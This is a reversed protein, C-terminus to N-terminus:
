RTRPASVGAPNHKTLFAELRTLFDTFNAPNDLGHGEDKYFASIVESSAGKRAALAKVMKHAQEVPVNTDLEGHAIFVPVTVREAQALPSLAKLDTEEEGRVKKEWQRFYRPAGFMRRDHKLMGPLDSVGSLSIACRYKEPNRIVGWLAVYGGYSAGMICVRAPDVTGQRILWDVGDDVDDQMKRGWQGHGQEVFYKGYGTSGRFNPQLVAYGRSALFQVYPDYRWSDRVFPGGHPMVVLPLARGSSGPPLTLYGPISLGDRAPYRIPAVPALRVDLLKEYPKVIPEMRRAPVDFLYYTGPDSGSGSWVLLRKGDITRDIVMTDAGPFAKDLRQQIAQMAPDLWAIHAREDEYSVGSIKRTVPHAVIDTVDVQPHGYIVDGIEGTRFDFRYAAFRDSKANTVIAGADEGPFFYVTDVAGVIGKFNPSRVKALPAEPRDRYWMTWRNEDYGIGARVVGMSDAFWNWVDPRAKEVVTAAGTALDIRKVLPSGSASKPVALLLWEGKPDTYLVYGGFLSKNEPDLDRRAHSQLDILSLRTASIQIGLFNISVATTVLLRDPGAWEIRAISQGGFEYYHPKRDDGTSQFVVLRTSAGSAEVAAIRTGEPSLSLTSLFPKTAFLEAAPPKAAATQVPASAPAQQAAAPSTALLLAHGVALLSSLRM